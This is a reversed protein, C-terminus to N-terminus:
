ERGGTLGDVENVLVISNQSYRVSRGTCKLVIVQDSLTGEVLDAILLEGTFDQPAVIRVYGEADPLRLKGYHVRGAFAFTGARLEGVAVDGTGIQILPKGTQKCEVVATRASNSFVGAFGLTAFSAIVIGALGAVKLFNRPLHFGSRVVSISRPSEPLLMANSYRDSPSRALMKRLVREWAPAYASLQDLLRASGEYWIGTVLKFMLVGFAYVDSAETAAGGERCEPALTYTTGLNGHITANAIGLKLRVGDDVIRSIGFDSLYMKGEADLLINEAKVDGHIIGRGHCYALASRLEQYICLILDSTLPNPEAMRQALTLGSIRDMVLYPTGEKTTGFDTVRVINPHRIDALIRAEALFKSALVDRNTCKPIDFVKVAHCSRLSEHRVAYVVSMGGRGIEKEVSYNGIRMGTGLYEQQVESVCPQRNRRTRSHAAGLFILAACERFEHEILPM